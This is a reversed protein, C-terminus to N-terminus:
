RAFVWEVRDGDATQRRSAAVQGPEGNVYYFWYRGDEGGAIGNISEVLLDDGFGRTEVSRAHEDLLELVTHGQRGRYVVHHEPAIGERVEELDPPGEVGACGVVVWGALIWGVVLLGLRRGAPRAVSGDADSEVTGFPRHWGSVLGYEKDRRTM